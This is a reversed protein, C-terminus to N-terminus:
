LYPSKQYFCPPLFPSCVLWLYDRVLNCIQPLAQHQRPRFMVQDLLYDLSKWIKETGLGMIPNNLLQKPCQLPLNRQQLVTQLQGVHFYILLDKITLTMIESGQTIKWPLPVARSTKKRTFSGKFLLRYPHLYMTTDQDRCKDSIAQIKCTPILAVEFVVKELKAGVTTHLTIEHLIVPVQFMIANTHVCVYFWDLGGLSWRPKNDIGHKNPYCQCQYKTTTIELSKLLHYLQESELQIGMVNQTLNALVHITDTITTSFKKHLKANAQREAFATKEHLMDRIQCDQYQLGKHYLQVITSRTSELKENEPHLQQAVHIARLLTNLHEMLLTPTDIWGHFVDHFQLIEAKMKTHPLEALLAPYQSLVQMQQQNSFEHVQIQPLTDENQLERTHQEVTFPTIKRKSAKPSDNCLEAVSPHLSRLQAWYVDEKWQTYARASTSNKLHQLM